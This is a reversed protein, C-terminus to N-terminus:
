DSWLNLSLGQVITRMQVNWITQNTKYVINSIIIYFFGGQDEIEKM